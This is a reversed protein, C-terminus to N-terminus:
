LDMARLNEYSRRLAVLPPGYTEDQEVFLHRVGTVAAARLIEPFDLEGVGVPRFAEPPLPKMQQTRPADAAMDKLHLSAVRGKNARILEAPDQGGIAAWFVDIQWKVLAPDFESNLADFLRVGEVGGFEYSHNHFCLTLGAQKCVEGAQNFKEATRKVQDLTSREAPLLASVVAYKMGKGVAPAIAEEVTQERFEMAPGAGMRKMVEKWLSWGGTVVAPTLRFGRVDLGLDDLIPQVKPYLSDQVEVEQYGIAAIERLVREPEAAVERRVTYLQAGLPQTL